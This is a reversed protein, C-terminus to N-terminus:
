KRARTACSRSLEGGVSTTGYNSSPSTQLELKTQLRGGRCRAEAFGAKRGKLRHRRALTLNLDVLRGYGGEIAPLDADLRTGYRGDRVRSIAMPVVITEPAPEAIFLHLLLEGPPGNFASVPTPVDSTPAPDPLVVKVQASGVGVQSAGCVSTAASADTNALSAPQCTPLGAQRLRANRDLELALHLPAPALSADATRLEYGFTLRVPAFRDSPLKSPAVQADVEALLNGSSFQEASALAAGGVVLAVAVAVAGRLRRSRHV